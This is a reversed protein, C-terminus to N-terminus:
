VILFQIRVFGKMGASIDSYIQINHSANDRSSVSVALYSFPMSQKVLDTPQAARSFMAGPNIFFTTMVEIPSLFDATISVPGAQYQFTSTTATFKVATQNAVQGGPSDGLFRYAIGDVRM